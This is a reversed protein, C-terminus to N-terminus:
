CKGVRAGVGPVRFFVLHGTGRTHMSPCAYSFPGNGFEDRSTLKFTLTPIGVRPLTMAVRVSETLAQHSAAQLHARM